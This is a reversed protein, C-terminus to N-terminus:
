HIKRREKIRNNALNIAQYTRRNSVIDLKKGDVFETYEKLSREYQDLEEQSKSVRVLREVIKPIMEPSTDLAIELDERPTKKLTAGEALFINRLEFLELYSVNLMKVIM